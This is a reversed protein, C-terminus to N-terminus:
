RMLRCQWLSTCQWFCFCFYFFCFCCLVRTKYTISSRCFCRCRGRRSIANTEEAKPFGHSGMPGLPVWPSASPVRSSGMPIGHSVHSMRLAMHAWPTGM